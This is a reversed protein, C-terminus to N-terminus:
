RFRPLSWPYFPFGHLDRDVLKFVDDAVHLKGFRLHCPEAGEVTLSAGGLLAHVADLDLHLHAVTGRVDGTHVGALEGILRCARSSSAEGDVVDALKVLCKTLEVDGAVEVDLLM